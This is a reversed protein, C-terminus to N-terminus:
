LFSTTSGEVISKTPVKIQFIRKRSDASDNTPRTRAGSWKTVVDQVM